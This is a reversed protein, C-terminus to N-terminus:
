ILLNTYAQMGHSELCAKLKDMARTELQRVREKTLGYMDGIESLSRSENDDIGFRFKIIQKERHNLISLLHLMHQRMLKKSITLDPIEVMPDATIEQITVDQDLWAREQISLPNRSNSLLSELRKIKIGTRKALEENTPNHGEQICLKRADKIRKLLAFVNEPLRVTRSNQFIAKRISQRIWWYAYTPFRCGAKPKFKELSRMLGRSGEQLLDQLNLGRGEYQKAVHIVLRFNAYIMKERSRTGLILCSKLDLSSMGVAKGWETLTPERRFQMELKQRAEELRMLKQIHVFLDKEEKITLLQKTEPGWLFLRLPDDTNLGKEVKKKILDAIVTNSMETTVSEPTTPVRRNKLKREELRKSKIITKSHGNVVAGQNIESLESSGFEFKLMNFEEAMLAAKKSAMMAKKALTLADNAVSTRCTAILENDMTSPATIVQRIGPQYLLRREFHKLYEDFNGKEEAHYLPMTGVNKIDLASQFLKNEKRDDNQLEQTNVIPPSQWIVSSPPLSTVLRNSQDHLRFVSTSSIPTKSHHNRTVNPPPTPSLINRGAEM